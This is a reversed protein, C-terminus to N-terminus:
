NPPSVEYLEIMGQGASEEPSLVASYAGPPLALLLAADASGPALPFAQAAAAAAAIQDANAQNQWHDNSGLLASPGSYVQLLPGSLPSPVGFAQLGPGIGRVLVSLPQTGEIVFGLVLIREGSGVTSLCSFNTLKRGSTGAPEPLYLEFLATGPQVATTSTTYDVGSNLALMVQVESQVGLSPFAGALLLANGLSEPGLYLPFSAGPFAFGGPTSSFRDLTTGNAYYRVGFGEAPDTIGFAALSPGLCRLLAPEASTGQIVSGTSLSQQTDAFYVRASANAIRASYPAVQVWVTTYVLGDATPVGATYWGEDTSSLSAVTLQNGTVATMVTGNHIWVVAGSTQASASVTLILPDDAHLALIGSSPIPAPPILGGPANTQLMVEPLAQAVFRQIVGDLGLTTLAGDSTAVPLVGAALPDNLDAAGDATLVASIFGTALVLGGALAQAQKVSDESSLGSHWSPDPLGDALLRQLNPSVSGQVSSFSGGLFLSGGATSLNAAGSVPYNGGLAAGSLDIRTVNGLGDVLLYGTADPLPAGSVFGLGFTDRACGFGAADSTSSPGIATFSEDPAGSPLLRQAVPSATSGVSAVAAGCLLLRGQSDIAVSSLASNNGALTPRGFTADWSGDSQYRELEAPGLATSAAAPTVTEVTGIAVVTGVVIGPPSAAALYISGDSGIAVIRSSAAEPTLPVHIYDLTGDPGSRVFPQVSRSPTEFNGQWLISHDPLAAAAGTNGSAGTRLDPDFPLQMSFDGSFKRVHQIVPSASASDIFWSNPGRSVRQVTEGNLGSLSFSADVAGSANLHILPGGVLLITGDPLAHLETFPASTDSGTFLTAPDSTGRTFRYLVPGNVPSLGTSVSGISVVLSAPNIALLVNGSTEMAVFAGEGWTPLTWTDTVTASADLRTLSPLGTLSNSPAPNVGVVAGDSGVDFRGSLPLQCTYAPDVSGAASVHALNRTAHGGIASFQGAVIASGDALGWIGAISARAGDPATVSLTLAPDITGDLAVQVLSITPSLISNPTSAALVHSNGLQIWAPQLTSSASVLTAASSGAFQRNVVAGTPDLRLLLTSSQGDGFSFGATSGVGANYGVLAGGDQLPLLGPPSVLPATLGVAPFTPDTVYHSAAQVGSLAGPLGLILAWVTLLTLRRLPPM